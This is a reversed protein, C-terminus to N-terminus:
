REVKGGDGTETRPEDPTARADCGNWGDVTDKETHSWIEVYAGVSSCWHRLIFGDLMPKVRLWPTRGCFCPLIDLGGSM